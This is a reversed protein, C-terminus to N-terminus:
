FKGVLNIFWGRSSGDRDSLDDNFKTFNYGIGIKMNKGIHRDISIM